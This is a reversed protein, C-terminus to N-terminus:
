GDDRIEHVAQRGSRICSGQLSCTHGAERVDRATQGPNSQLSVALHISQRANHGDSSAHFGVHRRWRQCAARPPVKYPYATPSQESTLRAQTQAQQTCISSLCGLRGPVLRQCRRAGHRAVPLPAPRGARAAVAALVRPGTLRM